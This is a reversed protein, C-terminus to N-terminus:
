FKSYILSHSLFYAEETSSLFNFFSRVRRRSKTSLWSSKTLSSNSCTLSWRSEWSLSKYFIYVSMCFSRDPYLFSVLMIRYAPSSSEFIFYSIGFLYVQKIDDSSMLIDSWFHTILISFCTWYSYFSIRAFYCIMSIGSQSLRFMFLKRVAFFVVTM